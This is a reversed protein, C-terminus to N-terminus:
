QIEPHFVLQLENEHALLLHSNIHFHDFPIYLLMLQPYAFLSLLFNANDRRDPITDCFVHTQVDMTLIIFAALFIFCRYFNKVTVVHPIM